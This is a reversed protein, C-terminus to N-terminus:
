RAEKWRSLWKRGLNKLRASRAKGQGEAVLTLHDDDFETKVFRAYAAAHGFHPLPHSPGHELLAALRAEVEPLYDVAAAVHDRYWDANVQYPMDASVESIPGLLDSGVFFHNGLHEHIGLDTIVRTPIGQAVSELAATSSVTLCVAARRLLEPMPSYDVRLNPPLWRRKSLERLLTEYPYREKHLTTEHRRHRPKIIVSRDPHRQALQALAELLYLREHRWAPVTPQCAFLLDGGHHSRKLPAKSPVVSLGGMLANHSPRGLSSCLAQYMRFDHPSNLLVLDTGMRSSFGEFHYRFVLGPYFSVTLPRRHAGSVPYMRDLAVTFRRTRAGDLALLIIDYRDLNTRSTLDAWSGTRAGRPLGAARQQDLSLETRGARVVQYEVQCGLSALREGFFVGARLFSDYVGAVLVRKGRLM